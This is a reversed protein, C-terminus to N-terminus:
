SSSACRGPWTGCGTSGLDALACGEPLDDRVLLETAASMLAPGGHGAAM